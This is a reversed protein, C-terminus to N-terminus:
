KDLMSETAFANIEALRQTLQNRKIDSAAFMSSLSSVTFSLAYMAAIMWMM